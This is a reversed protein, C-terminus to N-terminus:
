LRCVHRSNVHMELVKEDNLYDNLFILDPEEDVPLVKLFENCEAGVAENGGACVAENDCSGVSEDGGVGVSKDGGSRVSEDGGAGVAESGGAGFDVEM